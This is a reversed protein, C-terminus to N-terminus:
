FRSRFVEVRIQRDRINEEVLRMRVENNRRLWRKLDALSVMQHTEVPTVDSALEIHTTPAAAARAIAPETTPAGVAPAMPDMGPLMPAMVEPMNDTPYPLEEM